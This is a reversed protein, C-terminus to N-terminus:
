EDHQSNNAGEAEPGVEKHVGANQEYHRKRQQARQHHAHNARFPSPDDAQKEDCHTQPEHSSEM